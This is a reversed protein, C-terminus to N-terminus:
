KKRPNAALVLVGVQTDKFEKHLLWVSWWTRSMIKIRSLELYIHLCVGRSRVLSECVYCLCCGYFTALTKRKISLAFCLVRCSLRAQVSNSFEVSFFDVRDEISWFDHLINKRYFKWRLGLGNSTYPKINQRLYLFFFGLWAKTNSKM